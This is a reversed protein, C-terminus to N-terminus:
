NIKIIARSHRAEPDSMWYINLNEDYIFIVDSVWVGGDDQIGLSMLYTQELVELVRNRINIM